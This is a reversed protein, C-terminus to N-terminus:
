ADLIFFRFNIAGGSRNEMHLKNDTHISVTVRGDAGTTGTLAGTTQDIPCYSEKEHLAALEYTGASDWIMMSGTAAATLSLMAFGGSNANIDFSTAADDALTAAFTRMRGGSMKFGDSATIAGSVSFGASLLPVVDGSVGTDRTAVSGLGLAARLMSTSWGAGDFVMMLDTDRVFVLWGERPTIEVWAGDRYHALSGAAFGSWHDGSPLAPLLYVSGDDPSAPEAALSASVVALQIVADLKRLSENLTVHKQAQGSQLFPLTINPTADSM